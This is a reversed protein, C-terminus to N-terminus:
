TACIAKSQQKQAIDDLIIHIPIFGQLDNTADENESPIGGKVGGSMGHVIRGSVKILPKGFYNAKTGVIKCTHSIISDGKQFDPFGAIVVDDDNSLRKSDGIKLNVAGLPHFDYTAYDISECFYISSDAFHEHHAEFSKPYYIQAFQTEGVVHYNTLLGLGSLYFATGQTKETPSCLVFLNKSLIEKRKEREGEAYSLDFLPSRGNRESVNNAAFAYHLFTYSREGKVQSIFRVKGKLVSLFYNEILEIDKSKSSNRIKIISTNKCLELDIYKILVKM